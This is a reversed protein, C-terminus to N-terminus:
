YGPNQELTAETNREIETNPIPWLNQTENINFSEYTGNHMPNHLRVREVIKNMRMLTLLRFEETFLERAREDLLYDIDVEAALVPDANARSRVANIDTAASAQDGKLIYAEARLLYTEALRMMYRDNFTSSAGNNTEGTAPDAIVDAPFNGIPLSKAFLASWWRKYPDPFNDISGSAVMLQGFFKSEPNDVLVDRIINFDSNRMDNNSGEWVQNLMYDSAAWWGIGRGGNQSSHSFFINVGDDDKLQWYLPALFRAFNDPDGGGPALHEYQAVWIAEKNETGRNVNNRRFLDWYVDGPESVRSGFRETMLAYNPNDIVATAAAIAKDYEQTIIYMEALLHNAAGKSVRGDQEVADAEPLNTAGDELDSIVQAFVDAQSARVYDRKPASLEELALPVGGYMIGLTRYALARFFKTEAIKVNREAESAYAVGDIRSLVVNANAVMKYLNVWYWKVEPTEPTIKDAWSNLQHTPDIADYGVDTTYFLAFTNVVGGVFVSQSDKYLRVIALDIQEPTTFSNEPSYFDFPEENLFDEENCSISFLTLFVASIILKINKM